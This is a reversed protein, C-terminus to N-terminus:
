PLVRLRTKGDVKRKDEEYVDGCSWASYERCITPRVEYISCGSDRLFYCAGEERKGSITRPKKRLEGVYGSMSTQPYLTYGSRIEAARLDIVDQSTLRVSTYAYCCSGRCTTCPVPGKRQARSSVAAAAAEALGRLAHRLASPMKEDEQFVEEYETIDGHESIPLAVTVTMNDDGYDIEIKSLDHVKVSEVGRVKSAKM